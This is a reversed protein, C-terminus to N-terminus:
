FLFILVQPLSISVMGVGDVVFKLQRDIGIWSTTIFHIYVWKMVIFELWLFVQCKYWRKM